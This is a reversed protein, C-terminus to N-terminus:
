GKRGEGYARQFIKSVKRWMRVRRPYRDRRLRLTEKTSRMVLMKTPVMAVQTELDEMEALLTALLEVDGSSADSPILELKEEIESLHELIPARVSEVVSADWWDHVGFLTEKSWLRSLDFERLARWLRKRLNLGKFSAVRAHFADMLPVGVEPAPDKSVNARVQTYWELLSAVGHVAGPRTELLVTSRARRNLKSLKKESASSAIRFGFGMFRMIHYWSLTTDTRDRVLRILEPIAKTGLWGVAIGILPVPMAQTGRYFFRKAFEASLNNGVISKHLGIKVGLISCLVTYERAVRHDGIVLDDGLVAYEEFWGELGAKRASYQVMAHHSLALMAWSSYAGMPQGVAYKVFGGAKAGFTKVYQPPLRYSRDVLLRRWCHAFENTALVGLLVEQIVVPIRDTAASLDFSWLRHDRLSRKREILKEIPRLQDFTGDQPIVRLIRDFIWRHLPYLLWQTLSDVMAVIRVKGPEDIAALAGLDGFSDRWNPIRDLLQDIQRYLVEPLLNWGRVLSAMTVLLKFQEPRSVWAIWDDIVCAANLRGDGSNPGSKLLPIFRVVYGWLEARYKRKSVFGKIDLPSPHGESLDDDALYKPTNKPVLDVRFRKAGLGELLVFFDRSFSKWDELFSEPLVPGPEIITQVSMKGRYDLVRYLSFFGLYLRIAGRDGQRIRLRFGKPILRPLGSGTRKVAVGLDRTNPIKMGSVSQMLLVSCAKLYIATGKHGQTKISVTVWKSFAFCAKVWSLSSSGVILPTGRTLLGVLRRASKVARQWIASATKLQIATFERMNYDLPKIGLVVADREPAIRRNGVGGTLPAPGCAAQLPPPRVGSTALLLWELLVQGAGVM